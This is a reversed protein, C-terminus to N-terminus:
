KEWKKNKSFITTAIALPSSTKTTFLVLVSRGGIPKQLSDRIPELYATKARKADRLLRNGHNGRAKL